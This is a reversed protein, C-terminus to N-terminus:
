ASAPALSITQRKLEGSPDTTTSRMSCNACCTMGDSASLTAEQAVRLGNGSGAVSPVRCQLPCPARRGQTPHPRRQLCEGEGQKM